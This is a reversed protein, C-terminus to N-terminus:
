LGISAVQCPLSLRILVASAKKKAPVRGKVKGLLLFRERKSAGGSATKREGGRRERPPLAALRGGFGREIPASKAGPAMSGRM